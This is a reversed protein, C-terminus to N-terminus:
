ALFFRLLGFCGFYVRPQHPTPILRRPRACRTVRVSSITRTPPEASVRSSAPFPWESRHFQAPYSSRLCGDALHDVVRSAMSRVPHPACARYGTEGPIQHNWRRVGNRFGVSRGRYMKCLSGADVSAASHVTGSRRGVAALQDFPELAHRATQRPQECVQVVGFVHRLFDEEADEATQVPPITAARQARPNETDRHVTAACPHSSAPPRRLQGVVEVFGGVSAWGVIGRLHGALNAVRDIGKAVFVAFHEHQEM